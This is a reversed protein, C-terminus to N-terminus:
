ATNLFYTSGKVEWFEEWEWCHPEALNAWVESYLLKEKKQTKDREKLHKWYM